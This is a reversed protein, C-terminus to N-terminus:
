QGNKVKEVDEPRMHKLFVRDIPYSIVVCILAPLLLVLIPAMWILVCGIVLILLILVTMIPHSLTLALSQGLIQKLNGEFSVCYATCYAAWVTTVGILVGLIIFLYAETNELSMQGSFIIAEVIFFIYIACVPLWAFICIKLNKRYTDWFMRLPYGEDRRISRCVTRYLAGCSAGITIIPLSAVIWCLSLVFCDFLKNLCNIVPNDMNFLSHM